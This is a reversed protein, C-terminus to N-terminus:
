GICLPPVTNKETRKKLNPFGNQGASSAIGDAIARHSPYKDRARHETRAAGRPQSQVYRTRAQQM